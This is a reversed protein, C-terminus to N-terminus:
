KLAVNGAKKGGVLAALDAQTTPINSLKSVDVHGVVRIGV